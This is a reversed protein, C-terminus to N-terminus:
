GNFTIGEIRRRQAHPLNPFSKREGRHDHIWLSM